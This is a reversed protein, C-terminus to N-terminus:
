HLLLKLVQAVFAPSALGLAGLAYTVLLAILRLMSASPKELRTQHLHEIANEHQDQRWAILDPHRRDVFPPLPPLLKSNQM